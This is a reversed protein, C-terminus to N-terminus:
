RILNGRWEKKCDQCKHRQKFGRVQGAKILPGTGCKVVHASDCRPCKDIAVGEIDRTVTSVDPHTVHWDRLRKYVAETVVVDQKNYERMRKIEARDGALILDWDPSEDKEGVGLYQAIYRLKNSTFKFYKRAIKLTDIQKKGQIPDLGYQIARTNFKKIDFNDSNHGILVDASNLAKHLRCVVEYDNLPDKPSVSVCQVQEGDILKWAAGLM